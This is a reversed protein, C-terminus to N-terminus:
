RPHILSTKELREIASATSFHTTELYSCAKLWSEWHATYKPLGVPLQHFCRHRIEWPSKRIQHPGVSVCPRCAEEFLPLQLHHHTILRPIWLTPLVSLSQDRQVNGCDVEAAVQPQMEELPLRLVFSIEMLDECISHGVCWPVSIRVLCISIAFANM